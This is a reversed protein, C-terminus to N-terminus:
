AVTKLDDLSVKIQHSIYRKSDKKIGPCVSIMQGMIHIQWKGDKTNIRKDVNDTGYHSIHYDNSFSNPLDTAEHVAASKEFM